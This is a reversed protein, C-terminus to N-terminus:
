GAYRWCCLSCKLIIHLPWVYSDSQVTMAGMFIDTKDLEKYRPHQKILMYYFVGQAIIAGIFPGLFCVLQHDIPNGRYGFRNMDLLQYQSDLVLCIVSFAIVIFTASILNKYHNSLNVPLSYFCLSHLFLGTYMAVMTSLLGIVITRNFGMEDWDDVCYGIMWMLGHLAM